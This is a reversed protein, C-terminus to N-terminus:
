KHESYAFQPKDKCVFWVLEGLGVTQIDARTCHGRLPRNEDRGGRQTM